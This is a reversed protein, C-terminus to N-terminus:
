VNLACANLHHAKVPQGFRESFCRLNQLNAFKPFHLHDAIKLFTDGQHKMFNIRCEGSNTNLKIKFVSKM